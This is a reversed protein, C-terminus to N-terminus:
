KADPDTSGLVVNCSENMACLEFENEAEERSMRRATGHVGKEMFTAGREDQELTEMIKRGIGRGQYEPHVFVTFLSSEDVRGWYPGIAGCGIIKEGDLVVYMHTWGSQGLVHEPTETRILKDALDEPYDKKNSIEITTCILRSVEEADGNEFRRVTM